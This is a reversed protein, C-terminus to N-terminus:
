HIPRNSSAALSTKVKCTGPVQYTNLVLYKVKSGTSIVFSTSAVLCARFHSVVPRINAALCIPPPPAQRVRLIGRYQLYACFAIKVLIALLVVHVAVAERVVIYFDVLAHLGARQHFALPTCWGCAFGAVTFFRDLVSPLVAM